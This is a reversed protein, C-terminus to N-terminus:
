IGAGHDEVENGTVFLQLEAALLAAEQKTLQLFQHGNAHSKQSVQLCTGRVTGGFFRTQSMATTVNRLQTSM